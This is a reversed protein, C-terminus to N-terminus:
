FPDITLHRGSIAERSIRAGVGVIKQRMSTLVNEVTAPKKDGILNCSEESMLLKGDKESLDTTHANFLYPSLIGGQRVGKQPDQGFTKDSLQSVKRVKDLSAFVCNQVTLFAAM